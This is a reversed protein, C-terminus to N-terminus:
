FLVTLRSKGDRREYFTKKSFKRILLIGIGGEERQELPVTLDPDDTMWPNFDLGDHVITLSLLEGEPELIVSIQHPLHDNYSYKVINTMLEEYILDLQYTKRASLGSESAFDDLRRASDAVAGFTNEVTIELRGSM